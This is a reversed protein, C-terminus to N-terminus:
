HGDTESIEAPINAPLLWSYDPHLRQSALHRPCGSEPTAIVTRQLNQAHVYANAVRQSPEYNRDVRLLMNQFILESGNAKFCFITIVICSRSTPIDGTLEFQNAQVADLDPESERQCENQFRPVSRQM